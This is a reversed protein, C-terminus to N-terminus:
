VDGNGNKKYWEDFDQGQWPMGRDFNNPWPYHKYGTERSIIERVDKITKGPNGLFLQYDPVNKSVISGAGILVHRGVTIGPLLVSFVAVQSFDGVVPGVCINSPPHPDNTFVVYPYIFVYNGIKSQQGIHVNSHLWCYNGITIHGQLDSLTGIRCHHGITTKERITVRHGTEFNSGMESGAYLICHSRILASEGIILPPNEYMDSQYYGNLPEGLVCDNSIVSNDGVTVNDYISCNDAIKVNKGINARPSIYINRNNFKM